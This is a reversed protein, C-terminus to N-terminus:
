SKIMPLISNNNINNYPLQHLDSTCQYLEPEGGLNMAHKLSRGNPAAHPEDVTQVSYGRCNIQSTLHCFFINSYSQYHSIKARLFQCIMHCIYGMKRAGIRLIIVTNMCWIRSNLCQIYM